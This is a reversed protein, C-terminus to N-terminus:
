RPSPNLMCRRVVTNKCGPAAKAVTLARVQYLSLLM